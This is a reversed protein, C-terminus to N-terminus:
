STLEGRILQSSRKKRQSDDTLRNSLLRDVATAGWASVIAAVILMAGGAAVESRRSPAVHEIQLTLPVVSAAIRDNSSVTVAAQQANAISLVKNVLEEQRAKVWEYTRGVIQIEVDSKNFTSVWQNGSNVLEVIEGERIGAGYIPAENTSYRVPPRGNNTERVVTGAFAIVSSDNTGNAPSLSTTAPRMFSVVTKTTYISGDRALMLTVLAACALVALPIYWRRLIASLIQRFTM